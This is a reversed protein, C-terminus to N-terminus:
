QYCLLTGSEGWVFGYEKFLVQILVLTYLKVQSLLINHGEAVFHRVAFADADCDGSAFGQYAMDFFPTFKKEKCLLSLEKWQPVTPDM